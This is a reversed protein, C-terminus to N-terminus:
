CNFTHNHAKRSMITQCIAGKQLRRHGWMKAAGHFKIMKVFTDGFPIQIDWRWKEMNEKPEEKILQRNHCVTNIDGWGQWWSWIRWGVYGGAVGTAAFAFATRWRRKIGLSLCFIYKYKGFRCLNRWWGFSGQTEIHSHRGFNWSKGNPRAIWLPAVKEINEFSNERQFDAPPPLYQQVTM